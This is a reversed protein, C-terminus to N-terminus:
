NNSNLELDNKRVNNNSPFSFLTVYTNSYEQLKKAFNSDGYIMSLDWTHLRIKKENIKENLFYKEIEKHVTADYSIGSISFNTMEELIKATAEKQYEESTNHFDEWNIYYSTIWGHKTLKALHQPSQGEILVRRKIDYRKNLINLARIVAKENSQSDLDKFDLWLFKFDPNAKMLSNMYDIFNQNTSSEVEHGIMLFSKDDKYEVHIDVEYSNIGAEIAENLKATANCRHAALIPKGDLEEISFENEVNDCSTLIFSAILVLQIHFLVKKM